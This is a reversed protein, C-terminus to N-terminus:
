AQKFTFYRQSFYSFVAVVVSTCVKAMTTDGGATRMGCIEVLFKLIIFNLVACTAVLLAYRFAQVRGRKAGDPFVIFKNLLFGLPTCVAMSLGLCAVHQKMHVGALVIEPSTFFHRSAFHYVLIDLVFNGGGCALYRFTQLPFFRRFPPYFFDIAQTLLNKTKVLVM